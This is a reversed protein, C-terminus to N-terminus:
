LFIFHGLGTSTLGPFFHDIIAKVDKEDLDKLGTNRLLLAAARQHGESSKQPGGFM